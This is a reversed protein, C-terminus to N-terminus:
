ELQTPFPTLLGDTVHDVHLQNCLFTETGRAFRTKPDAPPNGHLHVNSTTCSGSIYSSYAAEFGSYTVVAFLVSM